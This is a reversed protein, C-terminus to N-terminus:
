LTVQNLGLSCGKLIDAKFIHRPTVILELSASGLSTQEESYFFNRYLNEAKGALSPKTTSLFFIAARALM